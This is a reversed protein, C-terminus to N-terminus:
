KIRQAPSYVTDPASVGHLGHEHDLPIFTEMGDGCGGSSVNLQLYKEEPKISALTSQLDQSYKDADAPNDQKITEISTKIDALLAKGEIWEYERVYSNNKADCRDKDRADTMEFGRKGITFTEGAANKWVGYSDSNPNDDQAAHSSSAIALLTLLITKHSKM